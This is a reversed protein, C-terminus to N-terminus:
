SEKEFSSAPKSARSPLALSHLLLINATKNDKVFVYCNLLYNSYRKAFFLRALSLSLSGDRSPCKIIKNNRKM